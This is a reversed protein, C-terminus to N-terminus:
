WYDAIAFRLNDEDILLANATRLDTVRRSLVYVSHLFVSSALGALFNYRNALALLRNRLRIRVLSFLAIYSHAIHIDIDRILHAILAQTYPSITCPPHLLPPNNSM